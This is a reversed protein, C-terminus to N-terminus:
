PAGKVQISSVVKHPKYKTIKGVAITRGEDRLTFRGMQPLTEFKEMALPAKTSVRVRVQQHSRAFKAKDNTVMQGSINDLEKIELLAEITIDDAFAHCHMVCSYGKSLIPKQPLLELLDMEAEFIMTVPPVRERCSIVDGKQVMGEDNIHILTIQVNEGPRAFKVNENKHDLIAGIQAPYGSPNITIKDGVHITGSEIKGHAVVGQEKVREIIPMRLPGNPDRNELPLNDLITMLTDGKYWPCVEPKVKEKINDGSLGSIPVYTVDKKSYGSKELFPELKTCIETWRGEAWNVSPEDMKNVVVVLKQVGLSKALQVHERTQGDKEFGAEFEGRRASIVLGAFDALAAGVIMNPVYNKHGPADFVTFQKQPTNFTARGVEVTKGKAQEEEGIDMCYALWWSDRGKEKADRKYKEITREDVCGMLYMIQGSITSKGADVHGIFVLSCPQRSEDVQTITDEDIKVTVDTIFRTKQSIEQKEVNKKNKEELDRKKNPDVKGATSGGKKKKANVSQGIGFSSEEYEEQEGYYDDYNNNFKSPKAYAAEEMAKRQAEESEMRFAEGYLWNFIDLPNM